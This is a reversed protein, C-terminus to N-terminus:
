MRGLDGTLSCWWRPETSSCLHQNLSNKPHQLYSSMRSLNSHLNLVEKGKRWWLYQTTLGPPNGLLGMSHFCLPPEWSPVWLASLALHRGQTGKELQLFSLSLSFETYYEAQPIPLTALPYGGRKCKWHCRDQYRYYLPHKVRHELIKRLPTKDM